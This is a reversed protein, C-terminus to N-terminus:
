LISIGIVPRVCLISSMTILTGGALSAVAIKEASHGSRSFTLSEGLFLTAVGFGVAISACVITLLVSEVNIYQEWYDFPIGTMWCSHAGGDVYKRYKCFERTEDIMKLTDKQENLNRTFISPSAPYQIPFKLTADSYYEGDCDEYPTATDKEVLLNGGGGTHKRWKELCFRFSQRLDRLFLASAITM